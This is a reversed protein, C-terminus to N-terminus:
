YNGLKKQINELVNIQSNSINGSEMFWLPFSQLHQYDELYKYYQTKIETLQEPTHNAFYWERFKAYKDQYFDQNLIKRNESRPSFDM